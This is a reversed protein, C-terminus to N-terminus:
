RQMRAGVRQDMVVKLGGPVAFVLVARQEPRDAVVAGAAEILREIWVHNVLQDSL